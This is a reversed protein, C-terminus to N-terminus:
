ISKASSHDMNGRNNAHWAVLADHLWEREALFGDLASDSVLEQIVSHLTHGMEEFGTLEDEAGGASEQGDFVL